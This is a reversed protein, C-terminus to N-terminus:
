KNNSVSEGNIGAHVHCRMCPVMSHAWDPTKYATNFSALKYVFNLTGTQDYTPTFGFPDAGQVSGDIFGNDSLDRIETGAWPEGGWTMPPLKFVHCAGCLKVPKAAYQATTYAMEHQFFVGNGGLGEGADAIADGDLDGMVVAEEGPDTTDGDGNLDNGVNSQDPFELKKNVAALAVAQEAAHCLGKEATGCGEAVVVSGPVAGSQDDSLLEFAVPGPSLASLASWVYDLRTHTVGAADTYQYTDIGAKWPEVGGTVGAPVKSTDPMEQIRFSFSQTSGLGYPSVDNGYIDTLPEPDDIEIPVIAVNTVGFWKFNDWYNHCMTCGGSIAEADSIKKTAGFETTIDQVAKSFHSLHTTATLENGEEPHCAVCYVPEVIKHTPVFRGITPAAFVIASIIAIAVLTKLGIRVKNM